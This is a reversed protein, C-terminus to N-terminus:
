IRLKFYFRTGCPQNGIRCQETHQEVLGLDALTTYYNFSCPLYHFEKYKDERLSNIARDYETETEISFEGQNFYDRVKNIRSM